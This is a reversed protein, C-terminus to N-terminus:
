KGEKGRREREGKEGKRGKRGKGMNKREWKREKGMKEREEIEGKGWKRGGGKRGKKRKKRKRMKERGNEGKGSIGGKKRNRGKNSVRIDNDKDKLKTFLVEEGDESAVLIDLFFIITEGTVDKSFM